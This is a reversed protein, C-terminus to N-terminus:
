LIILSKPAKTLNECGDECVVVMDEIRVGCKGPIYIGPEVTVVAGVPLLGDSAGPSLRPDEHVQMGVGHGTGHGFYEGYGAAKIVDRAVADAAKGSIHSSIVDICALQAQLVTDYVRRKEADIEGIAVTRTMDAHYGNYMAGFDMTLLDGKQLVYDSPVGHPRSGNPGAVAITQFSIHEAGNRRMFMELQLAVERETIGAQIYELIYAFAQETIDQAIRLDQIEAQTKVTRMATLAKEVSPDAIWEAQITKLSEFRAITISTETRVRQIDQETMVSCLAAKFGGSVCTLHKVKEEAAEIFRSDTLLYGGKQTVLVGGDSFRFGSLYRCAPASTFLIASNEGLLDQIKKLRELM